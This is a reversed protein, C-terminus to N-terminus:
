IYANISIYVIPYIYMYTLIYMHPHLRIIRHLVCGVLSLAMSLTLSIIISMGDGYPPPDLVVDAFSLHYFQWGIYTYTHMFLGSTSTVDHFHNYLQYVYDLQCNCTTPGAIFIYIYYVYM